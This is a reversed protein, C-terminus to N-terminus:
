DKEGGGKNPVLVPGEADVWAEEDAEKLKEVPRDNPLVVEAEVAEEVGEKEKGEALGALDVVEDAGEKPKVVAVVAEAGDAEDLAEAEFSGFGVKNENPEVGDEVLVAAPTVPAVLVTAEVVVLTVGGVTGESKEEEVGAVIADVVAVKNEEDAELM